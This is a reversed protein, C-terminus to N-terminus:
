EGFPRYWCDTVSVARIHGGISAPEGFITQPRGTTTQHMRSPQRSSTTSISSASSSHKQSVGRRRLTRLGVRKLRPLKPPQVATLGSSVLSHRTHHRQRQLSLTVIEDKKRKERTQIRGICHGLLTRGHDGLRPLVGVTHPTFRRGSWQMLLLLLHHRWLIACRRRRMRYRGIM